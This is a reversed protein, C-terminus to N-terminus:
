GGIYKMSLESGTFKVQKEALANRLVHILENGKVDKVNFSKSSSLCGFISGYSDLRLRDCDMCFPESDNAIVGFKWGNGTMWYNSTSAHIRPLRSITTIQSIVDLIEQQSVWYSDKSHNLYGMSMLELFRISINRNGAYELLPIIQHENKNKIVVSNLKVEVGSALTDEIADLVVRLKNVGTIQHFTNPDLADLSVNISTLGAEKLAKIQQSLQLGNTTIKINEIGIDLIGKILEPLKKFLLPEGGTLRIVNLPNVMHIASIISMYEDITLSSITLSHKNSQFSGGPSVCYVCAMSCTDAVSVRLTKFRRGYDDTVQPILEHM